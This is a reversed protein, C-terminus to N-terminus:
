LVPRLDIGGFESWHMRSASVLRVAMSELLEKRDVLSTFGRKDDTLAVFSGECALVNLSREQQTLDGVDVISSRIPSVEVLRELLGRSIWHGHEWKASALKVWEGAAEPVANTQIKPNAIFFEVLLAADDPALAGSESLIRHNPLQSYAQAYADELWPYERALAWRLADPAVVGIFRKDVGERSEVFVFTKLSRM